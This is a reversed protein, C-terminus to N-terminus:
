EAAQEPAGVIQAKQGIPETAFIPLRSPLALTVLEQGHDFHALFVQLTAGRFQGFM